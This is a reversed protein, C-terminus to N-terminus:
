TLPRETTQGGHLHRTGPHPPLRAPESTRAADPNRLAAFRPITLLAQLAIAAEMRALSAGLCAHVGSSFALHDKANPRTIDFRNPHPFVAPDRNAGGLPLLVIEHASFHQGALELDCGATRSTM